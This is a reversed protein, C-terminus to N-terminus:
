GHVMRAPLLLEAQAGGPAPNRLRLEGGTERAFRRVISLGLGVGESRGTLYARPGGTLLEEPFAAGDDTVTISLGREDARAAVKVEGGQTGISQVANLTLNLLAQRLGEAPALAHLEPEVEAKLVVNKAAQYRVLQLVEDVMKEVQVDRHAEPEMKSQLLLSNLLRTMRELEASMLRVREQLGTDSTESAMNDLAMRIGALPNRLEHAVTASLEGVAALREGRALAHQQELVASTASRVENELVDARRRHSAELEVLREAMRNYNQFLPTLLPDIGRLEIPRVDGEAVRMLLRRLNDIPSFIRRYSLWFLVLLLLPLALTVTVILQGEARSDALLANLQQAQARTERHTADRFDGLSRATAARPSRNSSRLQKLADRFLAPSEPHLNLSPDLLAEIDTAARAVEERSISSTGTLDDALLQSMQLTTAQLDQIHGVSRTVAELRATSKANSWVLALLLAGIVLIAGIVAIQLPRVIQGKM